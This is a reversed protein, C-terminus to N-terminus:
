IIKCYAMVNTIIVKYCSFSLDPVFTLSAGFIGLIAVIFPLVEFQQFGEQEVLYM